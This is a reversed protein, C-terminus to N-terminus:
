IQRVAMPWVMLSTYSNNWQIPLKGQRRLLRQMRQRTTSWPLSRTTAPPPDSPPWERCSCTLYLSLLNSVSQPVVFPSSTRLPCDQSKTSDPVESELNGTRGPWGKNQSPLGTSFRGFRSAVECHARSKPPPRVSPRSFDQCNLGGVWGGEGVAAREHNMM